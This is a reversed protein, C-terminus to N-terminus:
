LTSASCPASGVADLVSGILASVTASATLAGTIPNALEEVSARIVGVREPPATTDTRRRRSAEQEDLGPESSRLLRLVAQTQM